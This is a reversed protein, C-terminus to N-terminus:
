ELADLVVVGQNKIEKSLFENKWKILEKGPDTPVTDHSMNFGIFPRKKKACSM